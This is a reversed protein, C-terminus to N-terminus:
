SPENSKEEFDPIEKGQMASCITGRKKPQQNGVVQHDSQLLGLLLKRETGGSIATEINVVERSERIGMCPSEWREQSEDNGLAAPRRGGVSNHPSELLRRIKEMWSPADALFREAAKSKPSLPNDAHLLSCCADYLTMYDDKTLFGSKVDELSAVKGTNPEVVQKNPKPYFKPNAKELAELILKGNWDTQFNKRHKAYETRNAALSALAILELIKRIQLAISEATTQVNM